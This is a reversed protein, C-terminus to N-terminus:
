GVGPLPVGLMDKARNPLAYPAPSIPGYEDGFQVGVNGRQTEWLHKITILAAMQINEEVASEGALYTFRLDGRFATNGSLVTVTGTPTDVDLQDPTWSSSGDIQEVSTVSIVPVSALVYTRSGSALTVREVVTQRAVKRGLYDEIPKTVAAIFGRLEEDDTTTDLNLHQKTRALSVLGVAPPSVDFVDSYATNPNETVMQWLYRGVQPPSYNVRVQGPVESPLPVVPSDTTGDPLTVTLTASGPDALTGSTDRVDVAIQQIAGVEIM